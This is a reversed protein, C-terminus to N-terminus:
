PSEAVRRRTNGSGPCVSPSSFAVELLGVGGENMMCVALTLVPAGTHPWLLPFCCGSAGPDQSHFPFMQVARSCDERHVAM